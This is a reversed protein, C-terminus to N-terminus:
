TARDFRDGIQQFTLKEQNRLRLVLAERGARFSKTQTMPATFWEDGAAGGILTLAGAFPRFRERFIEIGNVM